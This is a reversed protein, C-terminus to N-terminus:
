APEKPATPPAGPKGPVKPPPAAAMAQQTALAEEQRAKKEVKLQELHEAVSDINYIRRLKEAAQRETILGADKALKTSAVVKSEEEADPKFYTGWVLTLSPPSWPM